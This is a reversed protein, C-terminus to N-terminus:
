ALEWGIVDYNVQLPKNICWGNCVWERGFDSSDLVRFNLKIEPYFNLFRLFKDRSNMVTEHFYYKPRDRNIEFARKRRGSWFIPGDYGARIAFGNDAYWQVMNAWLTKLRISSDFDPKLEIERAFVGFHSDRVPLFEVRRGDLLAQYNSQISRYSENSIAHSVYLWENSESFSSDAQQKCYQAVADLKAQLDQEGSSAIPNVGTMMWQVIWRNVAIRMAVNCWKGLDVAIEPHVWAGQLSRSGGKRSQVLKSIPIGM